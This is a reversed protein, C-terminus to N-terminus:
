PFLPYTSGRLAMTSRMKDWQSNLKYHIQKCVSSILGCLNALSILTHLTYAIFQAVNFFLLSGMSALSLSAFLTMTTCLVCVYTSNTSTSTMFSLQAGHALCYVLLTAIAVKPNIPHSEFISEGDIQYKLLLLTGLIPDIFFFLLSALLPCM